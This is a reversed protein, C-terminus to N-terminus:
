LVPDFDVIASKRPVAKKSHPPLLFDSTKDPSEPPAAPKRRLRPTAPIHGAFPLLLTEPLPEEPSREAPFFLPTALFDQYCM